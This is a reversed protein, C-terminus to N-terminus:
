RTVKAAPPAAISRPSRRSAARGNNLFKNLHIDYYAAGSQQPRGDVTLTLIRIMARDAFQKRIKVQGVRKGDKTAQLQIPAKVDYSRGGQSDTQLSFAVVTISHIPKLRGEDALTFAVSVTDGEAANIEVDYKLKWEDKSPGLEYYVAWSRDSMLVVAAVILLSKALRSFRSSM